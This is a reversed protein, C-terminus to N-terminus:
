SGRQHALLADLQERQEKLCAPLQDERVTGIELTIYWRQESARWQFSSQLRLISPDHVKSASYRNFWNLYGAKGEEDAVYRQVSNKGKNEYGTAHIM